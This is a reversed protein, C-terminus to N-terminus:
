DEIFPMNLSAEVDAGENRLLLGGNSSLELLQEMECDYRRRNSLACEGERWIGGPEDNLEAGARALQDHCQQAQSPTLLQQVTEFAVADLMPADTPAVSALQERYVEARWRDDDKLQGCRQPLPSGFFEEEENRASLERHKSACARICELTFLLRRLEKTPMFSTAERDLEKWAEM